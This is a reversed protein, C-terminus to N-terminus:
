VHCPLGYCCHFPVRTPLLLPPPYHYSPMPPCLWHFPVQTHALPIVSNTLPSKIHCQSPLTFTRLLTHVFLALSSPCSTLMHAFSSPCSHVAICVLHWCVGQVDWCNCVQQQVSNSNIKEGGVSERDTCNKTLSQGQNFYLSYLLNLSHMPALWFPSLMITFYLELFSLWTVKKNCVCINNQAVM